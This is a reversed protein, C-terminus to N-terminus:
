RQPPRTGPDAKAIDLTVGAIVDDVTNDSSIIQFGDVNLIVDSGSILERDKGGVAQAAKFIANTIREQNFDVIRGDRKKVKKVTINKKEM